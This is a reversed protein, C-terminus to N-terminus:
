LTVYTINNNCSLAEVRLPSVHRMKHSIYQLKLFDYHVLPPPPPSPDIALRLDLIITINNKDSKGSQSSLWNEVEIYLCHTGQSRLEEYLKIGIEKFSQVHKRWPRFIHMHNPYLGQRLKQWKKFKTFKTMKQSLNQALTYVTSVKHACSKM